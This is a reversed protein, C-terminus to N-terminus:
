TNTKLLNVRIGSTARLGVLFRDNSCAEKFIETSVLSNRRAPFLDTQIGPDHFLVSNEKVITPLVFHGLYGAKGYLAPLNLCCIPLFGKNLFQAIHEITPNLPKGALKRIDKLFKLKM